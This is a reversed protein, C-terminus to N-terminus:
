LQESNMLAVARLYSSFMTENYDDIVELEYFKEVKEESIIGSDQSSPHSIFGCKHSLMEYDRIIYVKVLQPEM